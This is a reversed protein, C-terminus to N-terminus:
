LPFSVHLRHLTLVDLILLFDSLLALFFSCDSHKHICHASRPALSSLFLSSFFDAPPFFVCPAQWHFCVHLGDMCSSAAPSHLSSPITFSTFTLRTSSRINVVTSQGCSTPRPAHALLGTSSLLEQRSKRQASLSHRWIIKYFFFFFFLNLVDTSVIANFIFRGNIHDIIYIYIYIYIYLKPKNASAEKKVHFGLQAMHCAGGGWVCVCVCVCVVVIM